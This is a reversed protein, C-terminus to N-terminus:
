VFRYNRGTVIGRNVMIDDVAALNYIWLFSKSHKGKWCRTDCIKSFNASKPPFWLLERVGLIPAM